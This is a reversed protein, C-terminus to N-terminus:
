ESSAQGPAEYKHTWQEVVTSADNHLIIQGVNNALGDRTSENTYPMKHIGDSSDGAWYHEIETRQRIAAKLEQIRTDLLNAAETGPPTAEFATNWTLSFSM